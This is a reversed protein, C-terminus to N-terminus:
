LEALYRHAMHVTMSGEGVASAVRKISESRVDGAAFVGPVSTELLMPDRPLPWDTGRAARGTLVFGKEDTAVRDPLWATHPRAGIFVFVAVADMDREEGTQNQVVRVQELTGNGSLGRIETHKLVEINPHQEIRSALYESMGKHLDGGRIMVSVGQCRMALFIAAQGASNGGGVVIARGHDCLQAEVATCAYFVGRGDFEASEVAPLKAYSAGSSILVSKTCIETGDSLELTHTNPGSRFGVVDSPASIEAGFKEAQLVAREALEAGSLGSPFGMYNEIKSSSGAQGGPGMRDLVITRLGESAGYVAAALGAPGAGVVVLDYLVREIPRKIGLCQALEENTPNRLMTRADCAVVPTDAPSVDFARLLTHAEADSELDTWTFPQGNKALFERIRLTEPSYRSGIVRVGVFGSEVLLQRRTWFAQMIRDSLDPSRKVIQRLCSPTLALAETQGKALASIVAPRGSLMDVDGSFEGPGHVVVSKREGSSDEVIEIGGDIVVFFPFDTSGAEILVEGDSYSHPASHEALAAIEGASFRPFAISHLEATTTM